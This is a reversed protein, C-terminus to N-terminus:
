PPLSPSCNDWLLDITNRHSEREDHGKGIGERMDLSPREIILMLEKGDRHDQNHQNKGEYSQKDAAEESHNRARQYGKGGIVQRRIHRQLEPDSPLVFLDPTKERDLGAHPSLAERSKRYFVLGGTSRLLLVIDRTAQRRRGSLGVGTPGGITQHRRIIRGALPESAAHM